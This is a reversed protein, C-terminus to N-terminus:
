SENLTFITKGIGKLDSVFKASIPGLTKLQYKKLKMNINYKVLNYHWGM